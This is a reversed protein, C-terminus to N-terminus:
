TSGGGWSKLMREVLEQVQATTLVLNTLEHRGNRAVFVRDPSNIWLM